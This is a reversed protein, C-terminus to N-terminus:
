PLRGAHRAKRGRSNYHVCGGIRRQAKALVAGRREEGPIGREVKWRVLSMGGKLVWSWGEEKKVAVTVPGRKGERLDELRM